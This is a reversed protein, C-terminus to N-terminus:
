CRSKDSKAKNALNFLVQDPFIDVIRSGPNFELNLPSFSPFVGFLKNNSDILHGKITNKQRETLMNISLPFPKNHTNLPDDM